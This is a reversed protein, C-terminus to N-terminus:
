KDLRDFMTIGNLHDLEHQFCRSALGTLIEETVQGAASYYRVKITNPRIITCTEEPFSLCGEDYPVADDFTEVIEPNFCHFYRDKINMVFLRIDVGAQNAALGIGLNQKMLRLMKHALDLNQKPRDFTAPRCTTTLISNDLKM